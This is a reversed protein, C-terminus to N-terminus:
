ASIGADGSNSGPDTAVIDPCQTAIADCSPMAPQAMIAAADAGANNCNMAAAMAKFGAVEEALCQNVQDVTATCTALTTQAPASPASTDAGADGTTASQMCQDYIQQCAAKPDSGSQIGLMLGLTGCGMQKAMEPPINAAFYAQMDQSAQQQQAPTMQSVQTNGPVSSIAKTPTSSPSSPNSDSGCAALGLLASVVAASALIRGKM